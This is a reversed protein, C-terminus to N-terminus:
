GWTRHEEAVWELGDYEDIQWKIDAPIEVIKLTAHKGSAAEYGLKRITQILAPDDREVYRDWFEKGNVIIKPGLMNQTHRDPQDAITYSQGSLQLYMLQGEHSLGFGGHEANIVIRRIGKLHRILEAHGPDIQEVIEQGCKTCHKVEERAM